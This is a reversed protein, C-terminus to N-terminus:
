FSFCSLFPLTSLKKLYWMPSCDPKAWGQKKLCFFVRLVEGVRAPLFVNYFQAKAIATVSDRFPISNNLYQLNSNQYWARFSFFLFNVLVAIVLFPINIFGMNGLLAHYDVGRFTLFLFVLSVLYGLYKLNNM